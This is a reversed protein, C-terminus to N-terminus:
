TLVKEVIEIKGQDASTTLRMRAGIPVTWMRPEHGFPVDHVVPIGLGGFYDNMVNPLPRTPADKDEYCGSFNGILIGNAQQWLGAHRLQAFHADIKRPKEDIEELLPLADNFRPQYPTGILSCFVTVNLPMLKGLIVTEDSRRIVDGESPGLPLVGLATTSTIARWFHEETFADRTDWLDVSPMPGFFCSALGTIRYIAHFLATMDSYGVLIKPHKKILDYDLRDLLRITGYGGRLAMIAKVDPNAFMAHIDAVRNEDSAALYGLDQSKAADYLHKGIEVRYGQRELYGVAKEVREESRPPSAPAILGITEGARLAKALLKAM